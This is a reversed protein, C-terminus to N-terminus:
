PIQSVKINIQLAHLFDQGRRTTREEATAKLWRQDLNNGFSRSAEQFQHKNQLGQATGRYGTIMETLLPHQDM